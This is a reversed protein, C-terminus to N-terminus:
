KAFCSNGEWQWSIIIGEANTTFTTKCWHTTVTESHFAGNMSRSVSNSTNRWTFVSEGNKFTYKESPPGWSAVLEDIDHGVWSRLIKEYDATMAQMFVCTSNLSILLCLFLFAGIRAIQKKKMNAEEIFYQIGSTILESM